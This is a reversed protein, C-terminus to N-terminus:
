INLDLQLLLRSDNNGKIKLYGSGFNEINNKEHISYRIRMKIKELFRLDAFVFARYGSGYLATTTM